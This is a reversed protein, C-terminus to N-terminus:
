IAIYDYLILFFWIIPYLVDPYLLDISLLLIITFTSIKRSFFAIFFIFLFCIPLLILLISDYVSIKLNEFSYYDYYISYISEAIFFLLSIVCFVKKPTSLSKIYEMYKKM